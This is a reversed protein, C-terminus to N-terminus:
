RVLRELLNFIEETRLVTIFLGSVIFFGFFVAAISAILKGKKDNKCADYLGYIALVFGIISAVFFTVFRLNYFAAFGEELPTITTPTPAVITPTPAVFPITLYAIMFLFSLISPWSWKKKPLEKNSLEKNPLEKNSLEKNKFFDRSDRLLAYIILALGQVSGWKGVRFQFILPPNWFLIIQNNLNIITRGKSKTKRGSSGRVGGPALYGLSSHSM